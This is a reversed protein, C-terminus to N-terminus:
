EDKLMHNLILDWVVGKTDKNAKRLADVDEASWVRTDIDVEEDLWSQMAEGYKKDWKDTADGEKYGKPKTAESLEKQVKGYEEHLKLMKVRPKVAAIFAESSLDSVSVSAISTYLDIAEKRTM